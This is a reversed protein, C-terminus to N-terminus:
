PYFIVGTSHGRLTELMLAKAEEPSKHGLNKDNRSGGGASYGWSKFRYGNQICFQRFAEHEHQIGVLFHMVVNTREGIQEKIVDFCNDPLQHREKLLVCLHFYEAAGPHKYDKLEKVDEVPVPKVPEPAPAPAKKSARPGRKAPVKKPPM